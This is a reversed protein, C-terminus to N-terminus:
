GMDANLCVVSPVGSVASKQGPARGNPAAASRGSDRSHREERRSRRLVRCTGAQVHDSQHDPRWTFPRGSRSRSRAPPRSALRIERPGTRLRRAMFPNVWGIHQIRYTTTCTRPRFEHRPGRDHLSPPWAARWAAIGDDGRRKRTMRQSARMSAGLSAGTTSAGMSRPIM